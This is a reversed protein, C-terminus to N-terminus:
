RIQAAGLRGFGSSIAPLGGRLRALIQGFGPTAPELGTAGAPYTGGFRGRRNGDLTVLARSQVRVKYGAGRLHRTEM